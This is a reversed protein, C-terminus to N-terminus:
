LGIIKDVKKTVNNFDDYKELYELANERNKEFWGLCRNCSSCLVGRFLGTFHNHDKSLRNANMSTVVKQVHSYGSKTTEIAFCIECQTIKDRYKKIKWNDVGFTQKGNNKANHLAVCRHSCFTASQTKLEGNCNKCTKIM